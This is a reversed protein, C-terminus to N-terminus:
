FLVKQAKGRSLNLAMKCKAIENFYDYNWKPQENSFGLINFTNKKNQKLLNNLFIERDDSSIKKLKGYNVGHSLAFFLDKYRNNNKYIELNEINLDAPIPM